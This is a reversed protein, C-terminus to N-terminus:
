KRSCSRLIPRLRRTVKRGPCTSRACLSHRRAPHEVRPLLQFAPGVPVGDADAALGPQYRCAGVAHLLRDPKGFPQRDVPDKAVEAFQVELTDRVVDDGHQALAENHHEGGRTAARQDAADGSADAADPDARDRTDDDAGARTRLDALPDEDRHAQLRQGLVHDLVHGVDGAVVPGADVLGPQGGGRWRQRLLRDVDVPEGDVVGGFFIARAWTATKTRSSIPM